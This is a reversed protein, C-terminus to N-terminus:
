KPLKVDNFESQLDTHNGPRNCSTESAEPLYGILCLIKSQVRYSAPKLENMSGAESFHKRTGEEARVTSVSM